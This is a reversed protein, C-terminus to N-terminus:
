DSQSINGANNWDSKGDKPNTTPLSNRYQDLEYGFKTQAYIPIKTPGTIQTWLANGQIGSKICKFTGSRSTIINGALGTQTLDFSM